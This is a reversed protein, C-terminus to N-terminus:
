MRSAKGKKKKIYKKIDIIGHKKAIDMQLHLATALGETSYDRLCKKFGAGGFHLHGAPASATWSQPMQLAEVRKQSPLLIHQTVVALHANGERQFCHLPWTCASCPLTALGSLPIHTAIMHRWQTHHIHNQTLSKSRTNPFLDRLCPM